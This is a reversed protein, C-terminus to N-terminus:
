AKGTPNYIKSGERFGPLVKCDKADVFEFPKPDMYNKNIRFPMTWFWKFPVSFSMSPREITDDKGNKWADRSIIRFTIPLDGMTQDEEERVLINSNALMSMGGIRFM